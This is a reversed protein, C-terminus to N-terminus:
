SSTFHNEYRSLLTEVVSEVSTKVCGTLIIHVIVSVNKFIHSKEKGILQQIVMRSSIKSIDFPTANTIFVEELLLLFERYLKLIDENPFSKCSDTIASMAKM